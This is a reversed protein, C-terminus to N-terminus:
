FVWLFLCFCFLVWGWGWAIGGEGCWVFLLVWVFGGFFFDFGFCLMGPFFNWSLSFLLHLLVM